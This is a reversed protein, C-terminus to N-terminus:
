LKRVARDKVSDSLDSRAHLTSRASAPHMRQSEALPNWEKRRRSDKWLGQGPGMRSALSLRLQRYAPAIMPYHKPLGWKARYDHVNMGHSLRLHRALLEYKEGDELCVIYNNTVSREIPVAPKHDVHEPVHLASLEVHVKQLCEVVDVARVQNAAVYACIIRVARDLTTNNPSSM